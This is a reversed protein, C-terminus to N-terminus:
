WQGGLGGGHEMVLKTQAKDTLRTLLQPIARPGLAVLQQPCESTKLGHDVMIIGAAFTASDKIPAFQLGGMMPAFGYDPDKIEAEWLGTLEPRDADPRLLVLATRVPVGHRYGLLASYLHAREALRADRSAQLEVHEISPVPDGVWLVKDAEATVTSLNSDIATVRDPDIFPVRLFRLWAVPDLEILERLTADFQKAM